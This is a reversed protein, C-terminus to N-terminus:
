LEPLSSNSLDCSELVLTTLSTAKILDTEFIVRLQELGQITSSLNLVELKFEKAKDSVPTDELDSPLGLL